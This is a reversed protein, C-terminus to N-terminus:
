PFRGGWSERGLEALTIPDLAYLDGCQYFSALARGRHVIVDTSANDKMMSRAGWGHDVIANSPHETIGAWLSRKAEQEALFGETKVFNSAYRAEGNDFSISHLLADGDFPHYRKIPEFVATETNRIYVGSLDDPIEGEVPMDWAEYTTHQPRWAGTRYPHDDDPPLGSEITERVRFAM